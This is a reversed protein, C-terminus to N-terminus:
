EQEARLVALTEIHWTHPFMDFPQILEVRYSGGECLLRLDRALTMPSCSLYLLLPIRANIVAQLAASEVGKRPPDLILADFRGGGPVGSGELLAPLASGAPACIFGANSIGNLQTNFEGDAVAEPCEEVCVVEKVQGAVCLGIAGCGSYADLVKDETRLLARIRDIILEAVAPNAQWFSKYHLRFSLGGLKDTLWPTGYLLKEENGLIVNGRERNINQVISCLTPFETTLQKVLLNSFPLKASRTVLILMLASGDWSARIGIHRLTGSHKEEDYASVGAKDCQETCRRALTDFVPPHIRCSQHPVITHSWREFIGSILGAADRGVPLFTKSRYHDSAPAALMPQILEQPMQHRMLERLLLTKHQLQKQYPLMLWDCGGCNAPEGFAECGPDSVEEGRSLYRLVRAFIVDRRESVIRAEVIDGIATYPVFVTKGRAHGIGYGGLAFKDIQLENLLTV